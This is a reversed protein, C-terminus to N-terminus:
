EVTEGVVEISDAILKGAQPTATYRVTAEGTIEVFAGKKPATPLEELTIPNGGAGALRTAGTVHLEIQGDLLVTQRVLDKELVLGTGETPGSPDGLAVGALSCALLLILGTIAAKHLHGM